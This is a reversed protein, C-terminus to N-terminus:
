FFKRRHINILIYDKRKLFNEQMKLELLLMLKQQQQQETAIDHRVRKFGKPILFDATMAVSQLKLWGTSKPQSCTRVM